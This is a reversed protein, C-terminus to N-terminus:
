KRLLVYNFHVRYYSFSDGWNFYDILVSHLSFVCVITLWGVEIIIINEIVVPSLDNKRFRLFRKFESFCLGNDFVALVVVLMCNEERLPTDM